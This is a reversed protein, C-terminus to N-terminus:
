HTNICPGLHGNKSLYTDRSILRISKGRTSPYDVSGQSKPADCKSRYFGRCVYFIRSINGEGSFVFELYEILEKVFERHNILALVKGDISNRIHLFLRVDYELWREKLDYTPHDKDLHSARRISRLYLRITKSWDLFSLSTLKDEMIKSMMPVVEPALVPKIYALDSM